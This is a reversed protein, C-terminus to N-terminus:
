IYHSYPADTTYTSRVYTYIPTNSSIAPNPYIVTATANCYFVISVFFVRREHVDRIVYHTMRPSARQTTKNHNM